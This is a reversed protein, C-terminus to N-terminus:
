IKLVLKALANKILKWVYEEKKDANYYVFLCLIEGTATRCYLFLRFISEANAV